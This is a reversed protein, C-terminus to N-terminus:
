PINKLLTFAWYACAGALIQFAILELVSFASMQGNLFSTISVAPNLHAKATSSLSQSICVSVFLALAIALPTLFQSSPNSTIAFISFIFVFTGVFEAVYPGLTSM